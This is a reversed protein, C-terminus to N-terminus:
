LDSVLGRAQPPTGKVPAPPLKQRGAFGSDLEHWHAVDEEGLRWCLYVDRNDMRCRFDVLGTFYDKLEVGLKKLEAEYEEMRDKGREFEAQDQELEERYADSMNGPRVLRDHRDQLDRALVTIDRVISRVLPLAANAEAVTYLKKGPVPKKRAM